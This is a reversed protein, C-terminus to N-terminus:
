RGRVKALADRATNLADLAHGWNLDDEQEAPETDAVIEELAEVLMEICQAAEPGDPNVLVQPAPDMQVTVRGTADVTGRGTQPYGDERRRLREVIALDPAAPDTM